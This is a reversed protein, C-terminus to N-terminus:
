LGFPRPPRFSAPVLLQMARPSCTIDAPLHGAFEGDMQCPVDGRSSSLHVRSGRGYRTTRPLHTKRMLLAVTRDLMALPGNLRTAMIDLLGDLPSACPTLEIPGGYSHTNGVVAANVHASFLSGDVRVEIDWDGPRFVTRLLAPVYHRQTMAGARKATVREVVAGDFGAGFVCAFRRGNCIGVDCRIRRGGIMQEVARPAHWSLGVEKALVNGAGAPIMGLTCSTLDAGNLVENFTGDGGFALIVGSRGGFDRAARLADGPGATQVVSVKLGRVRLAHRVEDLDRLARGRGSIPNVVLLVEGWDPKGPKAEADKLSPASM